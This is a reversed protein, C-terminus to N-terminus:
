RILYVSNWLIDIPFSILFEPIKRLLCPRNNTKKFPEFLIKSILSNSCIDAMFNNAVQSAYNKVILNHNLAFGGLFLSFSVIKMFIRSGNSGYSGPHPM